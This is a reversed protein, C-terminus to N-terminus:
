IGEKTRLHLDRKTRIEGVMKDVRTADTSDHSAKFQRQMTVLSFGWIYAFTAIDEQKNSYTLQAMKENLALSTIMYTLNRFILSFRYSNTNLWSVKRYVVTM